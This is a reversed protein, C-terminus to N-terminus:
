LRGPWSSSVWEGKVPKYDKSKRYSEELVTWVRKKNLEVDDTTLTGETVLQQIYKDM